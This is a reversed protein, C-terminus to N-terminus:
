RMRSSVELLELATEPVITMRMTKLETKLESTLLATSSKVDQDM